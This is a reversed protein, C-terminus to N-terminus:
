NAAVAEPPLESTSTTLGALEGTEADALITGDYGMTIAAGQPTRIYYHSNEFPVRFRYQYFRGSSRAIEGLFAAESADGQFVSLLMAGFPGEDARGDAVIQALERSDFRDAGPWSYREAAPGARGGAQAPRDPRTDTQVRTEEEGAALDDCNRPARTLNAHFYRREITEVCTYNPIRLAVDQAIGAVRALIEAPDRETGAHSRFLLPAAAVLVLLRRM